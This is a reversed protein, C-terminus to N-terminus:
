FPRPFHNIESIINILLCFLARFGAIPHPINVDHM